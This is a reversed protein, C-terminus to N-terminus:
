NNLAAKSDKHTVHHEAMHKGLYQHKLDDPWVGLEVKVVIEEDGRLVDYSVSTGPLANAYIRTLEPHQEAYKYGNIGSLFDGKQLGAKLAPSNPLVEKISMGETTMKEILIGVWGKTDMKTAMMDLCAQTDMSCKEGAFAPAVFLYVCVTTVLRKFM